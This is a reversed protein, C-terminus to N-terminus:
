YGVDSVKLLYGTAMSRQDARIYSSATEDGGIAGESEFTDKGNYNQTAFCYGPGRRVGSRERM